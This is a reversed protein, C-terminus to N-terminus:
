SRRWIVVEPEMLVDFAEAVRRRAAEILDMVDRARAGPKTIFFNAHERSIQAGGTTMGKCGARDLLMGASARHGAAGIGDIDRHLTPNRFICGASREAMPQTSKKYAMVEKLRQRLAVPDGPALKLEAGTIILHSLGSHRYGFDIQGRELTLIRGRRDMAHVRTIVDAIQGFAGGANMIVAGGISAPIGGLGEIGGLGRRVCEVILKPLNAGAMAHVQGDDDFRVSQLAPDTFALILRDIGADDVLLNAGDGLIYLDPDIELGRLIGEVSPPHALREARGGVGFWTPIEANHEIAITPHTLV